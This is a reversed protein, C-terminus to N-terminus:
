VGELAREVADFCDQLAARAQPTDPLTTQSFLPGGGGKAGTAELLPKLLTGM